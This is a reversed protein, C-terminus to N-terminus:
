YKLCFMSMWEKEKREPKKKKMVFFVTNCKRCQHLRLQITVAAQTFVKVKEMVEDMMMM